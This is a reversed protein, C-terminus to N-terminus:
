WTFHTTFAGNGWIDAHLGELCKPNGQSDKPLYISNPNTISNIWLRQFAKPNGLGKCNAKFDDYNFNIYAERKGQKSFNKIKRQIMDFYKDNLFEFKEKKVNEMRNEHEQKKQKSDSENKNASEIALIQMQEIFSM